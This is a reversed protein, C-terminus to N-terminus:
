QREWGTKGWSPHARGPTRPGRQLEASGRRSGARRVSRSIRSRSRWGGRYFGLPTGPKRLLLQPWGRSEPGRLGAAADAGSPHEREQTVASSERKEPGKFAAQVARGPLRM